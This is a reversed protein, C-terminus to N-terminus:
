LWRVAFSSLWWRRRATWDGRWGTTSSRWGAVYGMDKLGLQFGAMMPEWGDPSGASLFGVVPMAAQQARAAVPWTAAGGVITIFERRRIM